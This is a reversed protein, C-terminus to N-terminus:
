QVPERLERYIGGAAATGETRGQGQMRAVCSQRETDPLADCRQQANETLQEAAVPSLDGPRQQQVAGAERLCSAQDQESEASLCKQREAQYTNQRQEQASEAHGTACSVLLLGLALLQCARKAHRDFPNM